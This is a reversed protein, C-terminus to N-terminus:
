PACPTTGCLNGGLSVGGTLEGDDNSTSLNHLVGSASDLRIGVGDNQVVLNAEVLSGTAAAIGDGASSAVMNGVVRGTTVAIGALGNGAVVNGEVRVATDSAAVGAGGNSFVFCRTISSGTRVVVGAGGNSLVVLRDASSSSGLAVGAGGMGRVFGGFVRTNEGTTADVGIGTGVLDCVHLACTTKGIISFGNLDITVDVTLVEIATTDRAPVAGDRVLLNSTLRYAGPLTITVPLGPLDGPTVGGAVVRADDIEIVGDIAPAPAAVALWAALAVVITRSTSKM